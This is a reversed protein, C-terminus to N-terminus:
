VRTQTTLCGWEQSIATEESRTVWSAQKKDGTDKFYKEPYLTSETKIEDQDFDSDQNQYSFKDWSM